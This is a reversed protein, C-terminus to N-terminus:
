KATTEFRSLASTTLINWEGFKAQFQQTWSSMNGTAMVSTETLRKQLGTIHASAEHSLHREGDLMASVEQAKGRVRDETTVIRQLSAKESIELGRHIEKSQRALDSVVQYKERVLNARNNAKSVLKEMQSTSVATALNNELTAKLQMIKAVNTELRSLREAQTLNIAQREEQTVAQTM